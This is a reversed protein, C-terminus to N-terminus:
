NAFIIDTTVLPSMLFDKDATVIKLNHLSCLECIYNDNFDYSKDVKLMNEIDIESFSDNLRINNNLIDNTIIKSINGALKNYEDTSRFDRKYDKYKDPSQEQKVSFVIRSYSNFFESLILSSVYINSSNKLVDGYFSNIENIKRRGGYDAVPTYLSLWINADFFLNDEPSPVYDRLNIIQRSM